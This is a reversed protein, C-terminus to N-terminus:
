VDALLRYLGVREVNDPDYMLTVADKENFIKWQAPTCQEERERVATENRVLYNYTLFYKGEVGDVRKSVISGTVGIGHRLLHM